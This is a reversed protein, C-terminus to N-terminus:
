QSVEQLQRTKSMRFDDITLSGKGEHLAPDMEVIAEEIKTIDQENEPNKHVTMWRMDELIHLWKQVGPGSDFVDGAKVEVVEGGNMAVRAKGSLVINFHHTKHVYGLVYTDAPMFIERIYVGDQLRHTVPMERQPMERLGLLSLADPRLVPNALVDNTAIQIM